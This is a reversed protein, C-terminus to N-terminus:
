IIRKMDGYKSHYVEPPLNEKRVKRMGMGAKEINIISLEGNDHHYELQSQIKQLVAQMREESTFKIYVRRRPEDVQIMPVDEEPLRRQEYIWEHIQFASIRQSKPDFV